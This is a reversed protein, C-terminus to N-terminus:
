KPHMYGCKWNSIYLVVVVVSGESPSYWTPASLVVVMGGVFFNYSKQSEKKQKRILRSKNPQRCLYVIHPNIFLVRVRVYGEIRPIQSYWTHASLGM